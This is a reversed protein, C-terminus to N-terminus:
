QCPLDDACLSYPHDFNTEQSETLCPLRERARETTIQGGVIQPAIAQRYRSEAQVNAKSRRVYESVAVDDDRGDCCTDAQLRNFRNSRHKAGPLDEDIDVRNGGSSLLRGGIERPSVTQRVDIHGHHPRHQWITVACLDQHRTITGRGCAPEIDVTEAVLTTSSVPAAVPM